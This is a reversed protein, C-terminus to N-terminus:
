LVVAVEHQEIHKGAALFHVILQLLMQELLDRVGIHVQVRIRSEHVSMKIDMVAGRVGALSILGHLPQHRRLLANIGTRQTQKGILHKVAQIARINQAAQQRPLFGDRNGTRGHLGGRHLHDIDIVFIIDGHDVLCLQHSILEAATGPGTGDEAHPCRLNMKAAGILSHGDQCGHDLVTVVGVLQDRVLSVCRKQHILARKGERIGNFGVIRQDHEGSLIHVRYSRLELSEASFAAHDVAVKGVIDAM